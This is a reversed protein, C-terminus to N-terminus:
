MEYEGDPLLNSPMWRGDEDKILLHGELSKLLPVLEVFTEIGLEELTADDMDARLGGQRRAAYLLRRIEPTLELAFEERVKHWLYPFTTEDIRVVGEMAGRRMVRECILNFQRPIHYAYEAIQTIVETTFPTVKKSPRERATNLYNIAIHRLEDTNMRSLTITESFLGLMLNSIDQMTSIYRGTFLFSRRGEGRRLIDTADDLIEQVARPTKKDLDDIAIIVRKYRRQAEDLLDLLVPYVNQFQQREERERGWSGGLTFLHLNVKGEVHAQHRHTIRLGSLTEWVQKAKTVEETLVKALSLLLVQFLAESDEGPFRGIYLILLRQGLKASEEKLRYLLYRIFTTKGVGWIGRVLVNRGEYLTPLAVALEKERGYFIRALKNMDEPPTARFPINSLGWQHLTESYRGLTSM